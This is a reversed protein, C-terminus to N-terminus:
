FYGLFKWWPMGVLGFCLWGVLGMIFGYKFVDPISPYKSGCFIAAQGSAYHTIAGNM